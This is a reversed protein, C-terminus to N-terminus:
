GKNRVIQMLAATRVAPTIAAGCRELNRVSESIAVVRGTGGTMRQAVLAVLAAVTKRETTTLDAANAM